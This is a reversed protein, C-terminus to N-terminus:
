RIQGRIEGSAALDTHVNVYIDGAKLARVLEAFEGAAILQATPGVVDTATISGTVTTGPAPCAPKGGGGCLFVSVGGSVGIPAFHLHSVQPTGQLSFYVLTFTLSTESNDLVARFFGRGDTSIPPTEERGLLDATFIQAAGSTNAFGVVAAVLAALTFAIRTHKM